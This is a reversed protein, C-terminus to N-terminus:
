KESERPPANKVYRDLWETMEWLMHMVSERAMYGHSEHPLMVLRATAGLGKLAGYFRESQLPFTGSNDDSEGHILLIPENIKDAQMFPSMAFYVEPAQWLTREESQFGFPTLTRNYAGSRAVGTRFIDSHALLNATMFAGYSHGGVAIKDRDAVGRRVVEDVAAQASAVLQAVYTDNPEEDGEGVIPMSPDDLIAYGHALWLLPSHRHVRIFKYPSDKVQGAADASKYEEPYAWMLMPLSGDKKPSYGDPLYLTATLQVGDAREYKILEKQAKALQPTPHPFFTLQTLQNKKLDRLFYNPPQDVAERSTMVLRKDIDLIKVVTEYYPAESRFLRKTKMTRLDFEDLFPRDGEPSAGAGSLFITNGKDATMLVWVGRETLRYMPRGPDNYRDEWSYDMLKIPEKEPHGPYIRWARNTRTNWWWSSVIALNDDGWDIDSYRLELALLEVPEGDFPAPLMYVKDRIDAEAAADGGDQAEVWYLTADADARWGYERRGEAVSGFAVPIKDALPLDAVQYVFKGDRDWVEVLKPFRSAPLTYSFPRHIRTTAFYKGDPSPNCNSYIGKEGLTTIQGDLTIKVIQVTLYYEYLQADHENKLLDQYTPAPAAEGLNEQITPGSPVTPEPPVEGRDNPVTMAVLTRSDSLWHFPAAYIDNIAASSLQAASKGAVDIFWLTIKDDATNTFAVRKGDPSWSVNAIHKKEPLGSIKIEDGGEMSMFSLDNYFWGRSPGNTRPNFRFGALRLEPQAVEEISPLGPYHMLLIMK